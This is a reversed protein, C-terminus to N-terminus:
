FMGGMTFEWVSQKEDDKRDLNYGWEIRLPGIPSFWRIGVGAGKRLDGPDIASEFANGVDFFVVGKIREQPFLPFLYETNITVMSEGGILEGTSPDKPGVTRTEFGRLSNIGGLFYREYVPVDKGGFSYVFGFSGRISLTTEWPMPFYKTASGEHKVYSTNGGLWGGAVETSFSLTEGETPFFIDDRTDHRILARVSSVTSKGEQEKITSSATGAVDTVDVNEYRYRLYARTTRKYLPFGFRLNFGKKDMSFDPYVRTTNFLDVGASLPRDFLWPQTFSFVYNSSKSSITGSMDLKIGTGMLNSQSVSATAIVKDVTSYGMGFTVAGTPRETVNVDLKVKNPASGASKEIDVSEFYGLRRLNNRSKKLGSFSFLEGEAFELERRIVKDRTRVNGTIGIREIYVPENKTVRIVIDITKKDDNIRTVPDFEANAFGKDGYIETLADIGRRLKSRNFIQGTGIRLAKLLEEKGAILEGEIDISGVRFREGEFVAITIYFWRKDESLLVKRDLIDAKIYGNDFYHKMILSLDNEFVYENFSGSGTVFSLLDTEKTNMLGKLRRDSFAKNGIITIRRVKVKEGEDIRFTVTADLGEVKVEGRVDALYYGDQIYLGRIREADEKVVIRDLITNTKLTLVEKIREENINKNGKINVTKVFPKERVIFTVVKGDKTESLDVMVDDFYGMGYVTHIDEKIDEASFPQGARTRLKRSVAESDIRRNGEILVQAVVGTSVHPKLGAGVLMRKYMSATTDKVKKALEGASSADKHYFRLLRSGKIDLIRWDASYISELLTISGLVAFDANVEGSLEMATKEDFSRVGEEVFLEKVREVGVIEAGREYLSSAITEMLDRREASIDVGSHIDFPLILVRPGTREAAATGSFVIVFAIIVFLVRILRM